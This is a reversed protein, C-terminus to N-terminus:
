LLRYYERTKELGRICIVVRTWEKYALFTWLVPVYYTLGGFCGYSFCDVYMYETSNNKHLYHYEQVGRYFGLSTWTTLAIATKRYNTLIRHIITQM